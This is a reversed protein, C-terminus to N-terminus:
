KKDKLNYNLKFSHKFDTLSHFSYHCKECLIITDTGNDSKKIPYHHNHLNNISGCFLCGTDSNKINLITYAESYSINNIKILEKKSLSKYVRYATDKKKFISPLDILVLKADFILDTKNRLYEFLVAESVSLKYDNMMKQNLIIREYM